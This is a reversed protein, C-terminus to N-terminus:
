RKAQKELHRVCPEGRRWTKIAYNLKYPDRQVQMGRGCWPYKDEPRPLSPPRPPAPIGKKKVSVRIKGPERHARRVSARCKKGESADTWVLNKGTLGNPNSHIA